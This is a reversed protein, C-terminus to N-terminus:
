SAQRRKKRKRYRMIMEAPTRHNLCEMIRRNMFAELKEVFRKSYKSIDAGKPIFKRMLKNRNEISPKEWPSHKHCFYFKVNLKRELEKHELMLIDNDFTITQLEPYRRKMRKLGNEIRKTTVPWIKELLTHRYNRDVLDLLMGEGSKGSVIFDGEMHGVGKRDNIQKPRKDIMRKGEMVATPTRRRWKRILTGRKAEIKRGYPSTIYRRLASPSVYPLDTRRKRIREALLEPSQYDLLLEEVHARLDPHAVIKMGVTKSYKRKVYAHHKAYAADYRRGKRTRVRVEYAISSHRLGTAEEIDRLSYGKRTLM